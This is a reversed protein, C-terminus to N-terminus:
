PDTVFSFRRELSFVTLTMSLSPFDGEGKTRPSRGASDTPPFKGEGPLVNLRDGTKSLFGAAFHAARPSGRISLVINGCLFTRKLM